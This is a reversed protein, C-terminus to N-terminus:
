RSSLELRHDLMTDGDFVYRGHASGGALVTPIWLRNDAWMEHTPIEHVGFWLPAAEDTETPTGQVHHTVFVHLHLSLGDVFQHRHEGAHRLHSVEVGVEERVERIGAQEATEGPELKGGPADIKGTGLGRKKRILLVQADRVAYVISATLQPTWTSWDVDAVTTSTVFGKM